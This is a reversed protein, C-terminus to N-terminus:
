SFSAPGVYIENTKCGYKQATLSCAVEESRESGRKLLSFRLHLLRDLTVAVVFRRLGCPEGIDGHFLEFEEALGSAYPSIYLDFCSRVDSIIISSLRPKWQTPFFEISM